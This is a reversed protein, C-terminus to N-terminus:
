SAAGGDEHRFKALYTTRPRTNFSGLLSYDRQERKRVSVASDPDAVNGFVIAEAPCAQECATRIERDRIPRSEKEATIRAANIRQVCYTCKEMVGRERVSVDPNKQLNVVSSRAPRYDLFNFRRVKYPCNNSCYRTGVCRNYVMQNLGESSHVTAGVPCVLECPANECHMCPVPQHVFKPADPGGEFYQDIRIWHMERGRLVQERGVVPINNEAQCAIVCANCGTCTSLDISMGWAYTGQRWEPYLSTSAEEPPVPQAGPAVVRVLDRGEMNFHHQTAALAHNGGLKRVSVGAVVWAANAPRIRYADYGRSTGVSGAQTRGYGFTVAVVSHAQGPMPWVPGEVSRGAAAVTVLDGAQLGLADALSPAVLIANEWVLHTLPKPLEQLWANNSWRGDSVTSDPRMVLVLDPGAPPAIPTIRIQPAGSPIAAPPPPEPMIGAVLGRTWDGSASGSVLDDWTARVLEYGPVAEGGAILAVMETLSRSTVLPDILPQIVSAPGAFSRVDGWSELFHSEPLHWTCKIGTEDPHLGLHVTWGVQGLLDSYGLGGPSTYAPNAGLIFLADVAGAQVDAGLQSLDGRCDGDGDSRLARRYHVSNGEAGLRRNLSRVWRRIQVDQEPGAVVLGGGKARTLDDVVSRAFTEEAPTLQDAGSSASGSLFEDIRALISRTRDPSAALRFDAQAGTLTPTSEVAYFRNLRSGERRRSAFARSYRLAAPHRFLLDSDIALVVDAQALDFDEQLGDLDYSPLPSHQYWRAQPLAARLSRLLRRITPSTTPELLIALGAGRKGVLQAHRQRWDAEFAEWSAPRGHHLPGPSRDPDYLSLIAAQTVADTAGLSDPHAPNGEIKTPRGDHTEVVIGRGYGELPFASAYFRPVGPIMDEPANVYPVIQSATKRACGSLGALAFSAGMLRLFGRRDIEDPWLTAGQPFEHAVRQAFEPTAAREELSRWFDPPRDSSPQAPSSM